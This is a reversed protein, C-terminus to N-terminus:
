GRRGPDGGGPVPGEAGGGPLGGVEEVPVLTVSGHPYLTALVQTCSLEERLALPLTDTDVVFPEIVPEMVPEKVPEFTARGGPYLTVAVDRGRGLWERLQSPLNETNVVFPEEVPEM